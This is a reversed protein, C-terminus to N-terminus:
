FDNFQSDFHPVKGAAHEVDGYSFDRGEPVEGSVVRFDRLLRIECCSELGYVVFLNIDLVAGYAHFVRLCLQIQSTHGLAIDCVADTVIQFVLAYFFGHYVQAAIYGYQSFLRLVSRPVDSDLPRVAVPGLHHTINRDFVRRHHSGTDIFPFEFLVSHQIVM